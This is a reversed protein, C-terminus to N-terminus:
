NIGSALEYAGIDATGGAPQPRATGVIDRGPISDPKGNEVSAKDVCADRNQATDTLAFKEDLDVDKGITGVIAGMDAKGIVTNYFTCFEPYSVQSKANNRGNNFIINNSLRARNMPNDGMCYIAQNQSGMTVDRGNGYITNFQLLAKSNTRVAGQEFFLVIGVNINGAIVNNQVTYNIDRDLNHALRLGSYFATKSSDMAASKSEVGIINSDLLTECNSIAIGPKTAQPSVSTSGTLKSRYLRLTASTTANFNDCSILGSGPTIQHVDLQDITVDGPPLVAFALTRVEDLKANETYAKGPAGIFTLKSMLTQTPPTYGKGLVRIYQKGGKKAEDVAQYIICFPKDFSTGKFDKNKNNDDDRCDAQNHVYVVRGNEGNVACRGPTVTQDGYERLICVLSDECVTGDDCILTGECDKHTSCPRCRGSSADCIPNAADKCDLNVSCEACHTGTGDPTPACKSGPSHTSCSTDNSDGVICSVCKNTRIDCRPRDLTDSCNKDELCDAGPTIQLCVHRIPHCDYGPGNKGTCFDTTECYDPDDVACGTAGGLVLAAGLLCLWLARAGPFAARGAGPSREQGAGNVPRVRSGIKAPQLVTGISATLM